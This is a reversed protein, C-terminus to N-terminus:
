YQEAVSCDAANLRLLRTKNILLKSPGGKGFGPEVFAAASLFVVEHNLVGASCTCTGGDGRRRDEMMDGPQIYHCPAPEKNNNNRM